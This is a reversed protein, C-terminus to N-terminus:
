ILRNKIYMLYDLFLFKLFGSKLLLLIKITPTYDLITM